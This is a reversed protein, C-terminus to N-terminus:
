SQITKDEEDLSPDMKSQTPECHPQFGWGTYVYFRRMLYNFLVETLKLCGSFYPCQEDQEVNFDNLHVM